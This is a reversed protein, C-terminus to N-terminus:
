YEERGLLYDTTVGFYEAIVILTELSPQNINREYDGYATHSLGFIQALKRQSINQEKRLERLRKAFNEM